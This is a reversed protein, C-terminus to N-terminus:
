STISVSISFCERDNVVNIGTHDLILFTMMQLIRVGGGFGSQESLCNKEDVNISDLIPCNARPCAILYGANEEV